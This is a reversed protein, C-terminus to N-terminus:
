CQGDKECASIAASCSIADSTTWTKCERLLELALEWHKGKECASIAANYSTTDPWIREDCMTQLLAFAHQWRGGKECATIAASYSVVDFQM